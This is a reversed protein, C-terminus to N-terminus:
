ISVGARGHLLCVRAWHVSVHCSPGGQEERDKMKIVPREYNMKKKMEQFNRHVYSSEAGIDGMKAAFHDELPESPPTRRSGSKHLFFASM